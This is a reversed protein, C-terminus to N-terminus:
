VFTGQQEQQQLGYATPLLSKQTFFLVGSGSHSSKEYFVKNCGKRSEQKGGKSGIRWTSQQQEVAAAKAATPRISHAIPKKSYLFTGLQREVAAAKAARKTFYRIAAKGAKRSEEKRVEECPVRSSSWLPQEQQQLGDATPL